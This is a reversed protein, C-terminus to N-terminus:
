SKCPLQSFTVPCLLGRNERGPSGLDETLFPFSDPLGSTCGQALGTARPSLSTNTRGGQLRIGHAVPSLKPDGGLLEEHPEGGISM